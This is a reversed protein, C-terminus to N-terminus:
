KQHFAEFATRYKYSSLSAFLLLTMLSSFIAAGDGRGYQM